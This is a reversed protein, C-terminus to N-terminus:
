IKEKLIFISKELSECRKRLDVICDHGKEDVDKEGRKMLTHCKECKIIKYKCGQSHNEFDKRLVELECGFNPCM